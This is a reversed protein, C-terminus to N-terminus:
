KLFLWFEICEYHLLKMHISGGINIERKILDIFKTLLSNITHHNKKWILNKGVPAKIITLKQLLSNYKDYCMNQSQIRMMIRSLTEGTASLYYHLLKMHISGGINIERKILDIFKTLLSNISWITM